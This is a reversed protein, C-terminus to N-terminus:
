SALLGFLIEGGDDCDGCAEDQDFGDVSGLGHVFLDFYSLPFTGEKSVTTILEAVVDEIAPIFPQNLVGANEFLAPPDTTELINAEPVEIFAREERVPIRLAQRVDIWYSQGTDTNHLILLVPLPFQEWYTRHKDEPYFKWGNGTRHQFFSPGAKVQVAITRGTAFGERTVFELQGDIGVDGTGTERWIQATKAAYGQVAAIGRREQMYTNGAKPLDM